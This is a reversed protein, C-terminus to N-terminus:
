RTGPPVRRSRPQGARAGRPPRSRRTRPTRRAHRRPGRRRRGVRARSRRDAGVLEGAQDAVREGRVLLDAVHHQDLGHGPRRRALHEPACQAVLPRGGEGRARASRVLKCPRGGRARAPRAAPSRPGPPTAAPRASRDGIEVVGLAGRLEVGGHRGRPPALQAGGGVFARGPGRRDLHRDDGFLECPPEGVRGYRPGVMAASRRRRAPAGADAPASVIRM